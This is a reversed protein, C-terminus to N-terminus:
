WYAVIGTAATGTAWIRTVRLALMTTAPLAGSPIVVTEGGLTTVKIAGAVAFSISRTANTLDVTDSPIVLAVHNLPDSPSPTFAIFDDKYSM